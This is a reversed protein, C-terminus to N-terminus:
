LELACKLGCSTATETGVAGGETTPFRQLMPFSVPTPAPTTFCQSTFLSPVMRSCYVSLWAFVFHCGCGCKRLSWSCLRVKPRTFRQAALWWSRTHQTACTNRRRRKKQKNERRRKNKMM